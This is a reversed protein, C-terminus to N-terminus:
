ATKRVKEGGSRGWKLIDVAISDADRLATSRLWYRVQDPKIFYFTPVSHSRVKLYDFVVAVRQFQAGGRNGTGQLYKTNLDKLVDFLEDSEIEELRLRDRMPWDLHIAILRVPLQSAGTDRYITACMPHSEGFGGQLGRVFTDCYATLDPELLVDPGSLRERCTPQRGPRSKDGRFDPLTFKFLDDVLIKETETLRFAEYARQDLEEINTVRDLIGQRLPPLPVSLLDSVNPEPRYSSFRGSSLLLHYASVKSKYSLCAAELLNKRDESAHVSVYSKNCLIVEKSSNLAAQFRGASIQWGQKLILQPPEFAKLDTSDRSHTYPDQNRPVKKVNLWLFTGDPFHDGGIMRKGVLEDQRRKRDGRITGQRKAVLRHTALKDLTDGESLKKVLALDRRGGWMLASWMLTDSAADKQSVLNSDQPEITIRFDDGSSFSPKPCLYSFAEGDPPVRRMTVVCAPSIATSFLEFRLASLNVIEDIKFEKFLRSRFDRATGVVNSLIGGTPQIMVVSGDRKLLSASKPLFLPGIDNYSTRWGNRKAWNRAAISKKLSDKGWPANGTILDYFLDPKTRFLPAEKFFDAQVVQRDRLRPFKVRQWYWRPDIEDCLALYLSFSAVRVAHPDVDVGFINNELLGRLFGASPKKRPNANKWRQVLRQFCKVLYIGSGCAPDLIQKEWEKGDWPLAADLMFDVLHSPTYHAGTETKETETRETKTKETENKKVAKKPKKVFVEYISSIFELPIADFSYNSWLCWQGKKMQMRGSVFEALLKLHHPKVQRMEAQWEAEREEKTAGKGPFLDGNFKHNLYRFFCYTDDYDSLISGLDMHVRSLIGKEHLRKLFKANLAPTGSKDKRQFLFQIFILRALLDHIVDYGLNKNHLERRLFKLNSLLVQDVRQEPKFRDVRDRFFQGSVLQVWHLARAAQQSLSTEGNLDFRADVIEAESEYQLRSPDSPGEYCSWARVIHPEITVLLPSRCFNWALAHAANLTGQSVPNPFECVVALPAQTSSSKPDDILVGVKVQRGDPLRRLAQGIKAEALRLNIKAGAGSPHFVSKADPWELLKHVRKFSM